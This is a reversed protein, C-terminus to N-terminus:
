SETEKTESSIAERDGLTVNQAVRFLAAMGDDDGKFTQNISVLPSTQGTLKMSEFMLDRAHKDGTVRITKGGKCVPCERAGGDEETGGTKIVGIGDCRNCPVMRSKADEAVDAMVQPLETSMRLLGLHRMGDTYLSQLRSLSVAFRRCLAIFSYDQYEPDKLARAFTELEADEMLFAELLEMNVESAFRRYPADPVGHTYRNKAKREM